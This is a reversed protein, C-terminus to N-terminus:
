CHLWDFVFWAVRAVGGLIMPVWLLCCLELWEVWCHKVRSACCTKSCVWMGSSRRTKNVDSVQLSGREWYVHSIGYKGRHCRGYPRGAGFLSRSCDVQSNELSSEGRRLQGNQSCPLGYHLPLSSNRRSRAPQLWFAYGSFFRSCLFRTM